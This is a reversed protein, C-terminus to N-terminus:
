RFFRRVLWLALSVGLSLLLSTMVPIYLQFGPRELRMDGPLRGLWSLRDGLLWLALGIVLCVVGVSVLMNGLPVV